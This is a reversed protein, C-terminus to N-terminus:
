PREDPVVLRVQWCDPDRKGFEVVGGAGLAELAALRLGMGSRRSRGHIGDNIVELVFAGDARLVRVGVRTPTAHKHANRIAETLVSQALAELDDPVSRPDGEELVVALDPHQSALRELEAALTTQTARPARALPRQLAARLDALAAQVEEGCRRHTEADLAGEASLVLSVGFLRQIVQEHIERALDIRQELQKAREGQSTAIRAVAALASTKGLTWLLHREAEGLRPAGPSRESLIVGVWLGGAVMPTCVLYSDGLMGVYESPLEREFGESIELVRDETLARRALPASEVSVQADAFQKLAIGHAGAARVRRRAGDYRFIVARDMSTVRCVAQCLRSYFADPAADDEVGSLLDVVVELADIQAGSGTPLSM